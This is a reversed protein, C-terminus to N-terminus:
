QFGERNQNQVKQLPQEKQKCFIEPIKNNAKVQSRDESIQNAPLM